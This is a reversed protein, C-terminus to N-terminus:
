ARKGGERSPRLSKSAALGLRLATSSVPAFLKRSLPALLVAAEGTRTLWRCSGTVHPNLPRPFPLAGAAPAFPVGGRPSPGEGLVPTRPVVTAGTTRAGPNRLVAEKEYM